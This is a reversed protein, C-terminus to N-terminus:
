GSSEGRGLSAGIVEKARAVLRQPDILHAVRGDISRRDAVADEGAGSSVMGAVLGLVRDIPLGLRASDTARDTVVLVNGLASPEAPPTGLVHCPLLVPLADGHYNIVGGVARPLTPISAVEAPEMVELVGTIPLAYISGAVEFTLLRQDAQTERAAPSM